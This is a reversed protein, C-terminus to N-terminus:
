QKIPTNSSSDNLQNVSSSDSKKKIDDLKEKRFKAYKEQVKSHIAFLESIDDDTLVSNRVNEVSPFFKSQGDDNYFSYYIAQHMFESQHVMKNEASFGSKELYDQAEQWCSMLVKSTLVMVKAPVGFVSVPEMYQSGKKIRLLEEFGKSDFNAM